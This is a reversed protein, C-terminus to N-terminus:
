VLNFIEKMPIKLRKIARILPVSGLEREGKEVKSLQGQSVGIEDCLERQTVNKERRKQKILLGCKKRFMDM